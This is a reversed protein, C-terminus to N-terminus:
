IKALCCIKTELSKFVHWVRLHIWTTISLEVDFFSSFQEIEFYLFWIEIGEFNSLIKKNAVQKGMNKKHGGHTEKKKKAYRASALKPKAVLDERAGCGWRCTTRRPCWRLCPSPSPSQGAGPAARNLRFPGTTKTLAASFTHVKNKWAVKESTQHNKTQLVQLKTMQTKNSRNMDLAVSPWSIHWIALAMGHGSKESMLLIWNASCRAFFCLLM